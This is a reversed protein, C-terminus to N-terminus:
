ADREKTAPRRPRRRKSHKPTDGALGAGQAPKEAGEGRDPLARGASEPRSKVRDHGTDSPQEIFKRGEQRQPRLAAGDQPLGKGRRNRRRGPRKGAEKPVHSEEDGTKKSRPVYAREQVAEAATEHQFCPAGGAGCAGHRSGCIGCNKGLPAPEEPVPPTWEGGDTVAQRFEGFLDKPVSIDGGSPKHCRVANKAIDLSLVVYNGNPTKIKSGPGPLGTWMERYVKHEFSMCCMLRGCIGSIKSPNLAINQEKVMKIGIPAFQNLWYSCCCPLGCFSIGQIIRAEDRVGMQRLEIRTRFRRALDRVLTRFDVRQEATFYFFLKKGDLLMEDDILKISLKHWEVLEQAIRLNEGERDSHSEHRALDGDSPKRVFDLDTVVPDGGRVQGEGHESITRLSRYESEQESNIPGVLEALEEGRHSSVVILGDRKTFEGDEDGLKIIGLFRPKGYTALYNEM